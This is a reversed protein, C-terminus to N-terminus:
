LPGVSASVHSEAEKNSTIDLEGAQTVIRAVLRQESLHVQRRLRTAIRLRQLEAATFRDPVATPLPDVVYLGQSMGEGTEERGPATLLPMLKLALFRDSTRQVNGYLRESGEM